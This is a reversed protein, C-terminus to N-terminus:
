ATALMRATQCARLCKNTTQLGHTARPTIFKLQAAASRSLLRSVAAVAAGIADRTAVAAMARRSANIVVVVAHCDGCCNLCGVRNYRM